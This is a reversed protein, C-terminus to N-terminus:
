AEPLAHARSAEELATQARQVHPPIPYARYPSPHSPGCAALFAHVTAYLAHTPEVAQTLLQRLCAHEDRVHQAARRAMGTGSSTHLAKLRRYLGSASVDYRRAMARVTGHGERVATIAYEMRRSADLNRRKGVPRAMHRVWHAITSCPINFVLSAAQATRKEDEAYWAIVRQKTASTYTRVHKPVRPQSHLSPENRVWGYMTQRPVGLADAIEPLTRTPYKQVLALANQKVEPSWPLGRRSRKARM